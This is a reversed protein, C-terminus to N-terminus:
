QLAEKHQFQTLAERLEETPIATDEAIRSIVQEHEEESAQDLGSVRAARRALPDILQDEHKHKWLFHGSAEISKLFNLPQQM